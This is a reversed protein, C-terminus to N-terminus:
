CEYKMRRLLAALINARVKEEMKTEVNIAEQKLISAILNVERKSLLKNELLTNLIIEEDRQTISDGIAAILSDFVDAEQVLRIKEIRIYGGGGRKSQVIFGDKLNFRTKIVYNIQSPVVDFYQAIDSRRIQLEEDSSDLLKKLYEEITDSMSHSTM